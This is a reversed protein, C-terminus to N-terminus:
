EIEKSILGMEMKELISRMVIQSEQFSMNGIKQVTLEKQINFEYCNQILDIKLVKSKQYQEFVALLKRFSKETQYSIQFCNKVQQVFENLISNLVIIRKDNYPLNNYYEQNIRLYGNKPAAECIGIDINELQEESTEYHFRIVIQNCCHFVIIDILDYKPTQLHGKLKFLIHQIVNIERQTQHAHEPQQQQFQEQVTLQNKSQSQKTIVMQNNEFIIAADEPKPPPQMCSSNKMQQESRDKESQLSPNNQFNFIDHVSHAKIKLGSNNEIQQKQTQDISPVNEQQKSKNLNSDTMSLFEDNSSNNSSVHKVQSAAVQNLQSEAKPIGLIESAFQSQNFPIQNNDVGFKESSKSNSSSDDFFMKNSRPDRM